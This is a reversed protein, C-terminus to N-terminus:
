SNGYVFELAIDLGFAISPLDMKAAFLASVRRLATTVLASDFGTVRGRFLTDSEWRIGMRANGHQVVRGFAARHRRTVASGQCADYPARAFDFYRLAATREDPLLQVVHLVSDNAFEM